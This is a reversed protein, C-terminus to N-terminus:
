VNGKYARGTPPCGPWRGPRCDLFWLSNTDTEGRHAPRETRPEVLWAVGQSKGGASRGAWGPPRQCSLSSRGM